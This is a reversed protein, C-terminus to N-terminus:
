NRKMTFKIPEAVDADEAAAEAALAVEDGPAAAPFKMPWPMVAAPAAAKTKASKYFFFIGFICFILDGGVWWGVM